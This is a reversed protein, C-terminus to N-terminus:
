NKCLFSPELETITWKWKWGSQIQSWGIPMCASKKRQPFKGLPKLPSSEGQIHAAGDGPRADCVSYFSAFSFTPQAGADMERQKRIAACHSWSGWAEGPMGEGGHHAAGELWSGSYNRGRQWEEQDPRLRSSHLSHVTGATWELFCWQFGRM